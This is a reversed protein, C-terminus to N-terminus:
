LGEETEEEEEEEKKKALAENVKEEITEDLQRDKVYDSLMTAGFGIIAAAFGLAKLLKGKM